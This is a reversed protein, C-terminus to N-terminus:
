TAKIKKTKIRGIMENHAAELPSFLAIMEPTQENPQLSEERWKGTNYDVIHIWVIRNRYGVGTISEPITAVIRENGILKIARTM